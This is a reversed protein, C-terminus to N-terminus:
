SGSSHPLPNAQMTFILGSSTNRVTISNTSHFTRKCGSVACWNQLLTSCTISLARRCRPRSWRCPAENLRGIWGGAIPRDLFRSPVRCRGRPVGRSYGDPIEVADVHFAFDVAKHRGSATCLEARIACRNDPPGSRWRVWEIALEALGVVAQRHRRPRAWIECDQRTSRRDRHRDRRCTAPWRGGRLKCGAASQSPCGIATSRRGTSLSSCRHIARENKQRM